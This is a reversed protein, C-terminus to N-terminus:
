TRTDTSMSLKLKGMCEQFLKLDDLQNQLGSIKTELQQITLDKQKIEKELEAVHSEREQYKSREHEIGISYSGLGSSAWYKPLLQCLTKHFSLIEFKAKGMLYNSGSWFQPMRQTFPIKSSSWSNHDIRPWKKNFSQILEILIDNLQIDPNGPEYEYSVSYSPYYSDTSRGGVNVHYLNGYNTIIPGHHYHTYSNRGDRGNALYVGFFIVYEDPHLLLSEGRYRPPGYSRSYDIRGGNKLNERVEEMDTGQYGDYIRKMAVMLSQYQQDYDCLDGRRGDAGCNNQKCMQALTEGDLKGFGATTLTRQEIQDGIESRIQHSIKRLIEGSIKDFSTKIIAESDSLINRSNVLIPVSAPSDM